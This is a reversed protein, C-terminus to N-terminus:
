HATKVATGVVTTYGMTFHGGLADVAAGIGALLQDLTGAPLRNNGGFTPVADLWEDKSYGREWDFRWQEPEAFAGTAQMGAAMRGALRAYGDPGPLGTRMPANPIVKHFVDAMAEGLGAPPRFANWFVAIRGGPRLAQAARQAGAVPDVWHWAQGAVVADFERGAPDWDEIRAVEVELGRARAQEAMRGDPDVGLVEAGAAQFLRAVIGTGCGVDLVRPGPSTALVREVLAPPYSPRARDYQGANAGFGEAVQRFQESRAGPLAQAAGAGASEAGTGASGAGPGASQAGAGAPEAGAGASEPQPLTPV